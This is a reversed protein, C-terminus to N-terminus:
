AIDNKTIIDDVFQDREATTMISGDVNLYPYMAHITASRAKLAATDPPRVVDNPIKYSRNSAAPSFGIFTDDDPNHLHGGNEVWPPTIVVGEPSVRHNKYELFM